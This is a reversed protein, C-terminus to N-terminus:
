ATAELGPVIVKVFADDQRSKGQRSKLLSKVKCYARIAPPNEVGQVVCEWRGTDPNKETKPEVAWGGFVERPVLETIEGIGVGFAYRGGAGWAVTDGVKLEQGLADIAKM